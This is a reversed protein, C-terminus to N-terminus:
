AACPLDGFGTKNESVQKTTKNNKTKEKEPAQELEVAIENNNQKTKKRM